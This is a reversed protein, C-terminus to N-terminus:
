VQSVPLPLRDENYQRLLSRVSFVAELVEETTAQMDTIATVHCSSLWQRAVPMNASGNGLLLQISTECNQSETSM